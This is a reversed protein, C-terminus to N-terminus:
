ARLLGSKSAVAKLKLTLADFIRPFRSMVNEKERGGEIGTFPFTQTDIRTITSAHGSYRTPISSARDDIFKGRTHSATSRWQFDIVCRTPINAINARYLSPPATFRPITQRSFQFPVVVPTSFSWTFPVPTGGMPTARLLLLLLLLPLYSFRPGNSLERKEQLQPLNIQIALGIKWRLNIGLSLDQPDPNQSKVRIENTNHM